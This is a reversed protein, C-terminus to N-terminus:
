KSSLFDSREIENLLSIRDEYSFEFDLLIIPLANRIEQNVFKKCVDSDRRMCSLIDIIDQERKMMIKTETQIENPINYKNFVAHRM